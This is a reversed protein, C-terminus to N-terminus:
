LMKGRYIANNKKGYKKNWEGSIGVNLPTSLNTVAESTYVRLTILKLFRFEYDQYNAKRQNRVREAM